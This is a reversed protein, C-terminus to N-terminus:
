FWDGLTSTQKVTIQKGSKKSKVEPKWESFKGGDEMTMEDGWYPPSWMNSFQWNKSGTRIDTILANACLFYWRKMPFFMRMNIMSTRIMRLDVDVGFPYIQPYKDMARILFVGCGVAPDLVTPSKEKIEGITTKVIYDVIQVPTFVQGLERSSPVFKNFYENPEDDLVSKVFELIKDYSTDAYRKNEEKIPNFRLVDGFVDIMIDYNSNCSEFVKNLLKEPKNTLHIKNSKM